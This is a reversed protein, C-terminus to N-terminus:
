PAEEKMTRNCNGLVHLPRIRSKANLSSRYGSWFDDSRSFEGESSGGSVEGPDTMPRIGQRDAYQVAPGPWLKDGTIAFDGRTEFFNKLFWEYNDSYLVGHGTNEFEYVQANPNMRVIHEVGKGWLVPSKHGKLFAIPVRVRSLALGLDEQLAQSAYFGMRGFSVLEDSPIALGGSERETLTELDFRSVSLLTRRGMAHMDDVVATLTREPFLEAFRIVTRGGMSFGVIHAKEVGLQDLLVRLDNAMTTSSFSYGRAPTYGHGRQDYSVVHYGMDAMERATREWMGWTGAICPIFVITERGGRNWERFNIEGPKLDNRPDYVPDGAILRAQYNLVDQVTITKTEQASAISVSFLLSLAITWLYKM